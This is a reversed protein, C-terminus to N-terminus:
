ASKGRMITPKIDTFRAVDARVDAMAPNKLAAQLAEPSAFQFHAIMVYPAEVNGMPVGEILVVKTAQMAKMTLPIHITRYYATDFRAGKQSPYLVNLSVMPESAASAAGSSMVAAAGVSAAAGRGFDRRSLM